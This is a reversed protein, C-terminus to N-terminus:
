MCAVNEVTSIFKIIIDSNLVKERIFRYDMEIHETHAHFVPNSALALASVSDHWLIPAFSLPIRLEKFLM